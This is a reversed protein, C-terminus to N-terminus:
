AVHRLMDVLHERHQLFPQPPAAAIERAALLLLQGDAARQHEIRLSSIRSSGVSPMWGLMTRSIPSTIMRSFRSRAQGHQQHLLLQRERAPHRAVQADEVLAAQDDRPGIASSVSSTTRGAGSPILHLAASSCPLCRAPLSSSRRRNAARAPGRVRARPEHMAAMAAREHHLTREIRFAIDAMDVDDMRRAADDAAVLQAAIRLHLRARM